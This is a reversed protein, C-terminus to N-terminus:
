ISIDTLNVNLLQFFFCKEFIIMQLISLDQKVKIPIM